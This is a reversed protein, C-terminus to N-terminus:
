DIFALFRSAITGSFETLWIQELPDLCYGEFLRYWVEHV